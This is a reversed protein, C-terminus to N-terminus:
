AERKPPESATKVGKRDLDKAVAFGQTVIAGAALAALLRHPSYSFEEDLM